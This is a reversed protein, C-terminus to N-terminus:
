EGILAPDTSPTAPEGDAAAGNVVGDPAPAAKAASTAGMGIAQDRQLQKGETQLSPAVMVEARQFDRIDQYGCTAMSTRLSGMLNFTGDNEHAPGLLIQELTGNQTTKVRAGRPLSPHFTAM